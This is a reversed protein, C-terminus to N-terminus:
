VVFVRMLIIDVADPTLLARVTTDEKKVFSQEMLCLEGFQKNAKANMIQELINAPKAKLKPDLAMENKIKLQIQAKIEAPIDEVHIYEPNLACVHLALENALQQSIPKDFMLLTSLKKTWHNYIGFTQTPTKKVVDIKVLVINEGLKHILQLLHDNVTENNAMKSQLFAQLDTTPHDLLHKSLVNVADLFLQNKAVFDTECGIQLVVALEDNQEILVAGETTLNTQKKLAKSLGHQYLWQIAKPLDNECVKLAQLCDNYGANTTQRLEKLKNLDVKQM